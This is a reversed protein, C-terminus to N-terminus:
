GRRGEEEMFKRMLKDMMDKEAVIRKAQEADLVTGCSFCYLAEASNQEGCNVCKKRLLPSPKDTEEVSKVGAIQLFANESDQGAIHSYHLYMPSNPTWGFMDNAQKIGIHVKRNKAVATVKSHRLYHLSVANIQKPQGTKKDKVTKWRYIGARACYRKFHWRNMSDYSVRRMKSQKGREVWLPADSNHKFPHHNLWLRLLSAFLVIPITRSGTKGSVFIQFGYSIQKCDKINMGLLEGPRLGAEYGVAFFAKDRPHDVVNLLAYIEEESFCKNKLRKEWDIKKFKIKHWLKPCVDDDEDFLYKAIRQYRQLWLNWTSDELQEDLIDLVKHVVTENLYCTEFPQKAIETFRRYVLKYGRKTQEDLSHQSNLLSDFTRQSLILGRM